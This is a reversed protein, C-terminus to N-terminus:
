RTEDAWLTVPTNIGISRMRAALDHGVITAEDRDATLCVVAVSSGPQAYRSFADRLSRWVLERDRGKSPLDVRASPLDSGMPLFVISEEPKFGLLHPIVAVLEGPSHISLTM